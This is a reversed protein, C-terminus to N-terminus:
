LWMRLWRQVRYGRWGRRECWGVEHGGESCVYIGKNPRRRPMRGLVELRLRVGKGIYESNSSQVHGFWRDPMEPKRELVDLM